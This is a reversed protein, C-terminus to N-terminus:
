AYVERASMLALVQGRSEGATDTVRTM